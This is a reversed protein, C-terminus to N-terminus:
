RRIDRMLAAGAPGYIGRDDGALMWRLQQDARADEAGTVGVMLLQALKDRLPMRLLADDSCVPATAQPVEAETASPRSPPRLGQGIHFGMVVLVGVLVLAFVGGVAAAARRLPRAVATARARWNM